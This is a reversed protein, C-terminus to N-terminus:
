SEESLSAIYALRERIPLHQTCREECLGCQTCASAAEPSLNWHMRLRYRIHEALDGGSLMGVNYADMLRPLNLGEPCPLCYGCGTCLGDFSEVIKERLATAHAEDYPRFDEVADVAEDVQTTNSFGVLASTVAPCSLNFRLAAAVVSPDDHSRIFDFREANQPILGGGLPNMTVVGLGRRGAEDMAQQRYPFNIACYGLTVGEFPGEDLVTCLEEGPLHSSVVVHEILGEEKARIAAAVAGGEVRRSWDDLTIVCWIHYFHIREVGLRELSTELQRRVEAGDAGGSKTSVYFTDPPMHQFATGLITESHDHCYGPATDFYNVGRRYAHLVVEAMEDIKDPESFRMGGCGLLSLEKGTQGYPRTQM